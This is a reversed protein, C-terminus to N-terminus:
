KLSIGHGFVLNLLHGQPNTVQCRNVSFTQTDIVAPPSASNYQLVKGIVTGTQDTHLQLALYGAASSTVFDDSSAPSLAVVSTSSASGIAGGLLLVAMALGIRPRNFRGTIKM